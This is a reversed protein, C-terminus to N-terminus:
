NEFDIGDEFEEESMKKRLTREVIEGKGENESKDNEAYRIRKHVELVVIGDKVKKVEATNGRSLIEKIKNLVKVVKKLLV